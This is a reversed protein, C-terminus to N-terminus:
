NGGDPIFVEQPTYIIDRNVVVALVDYLHAEKGPHHVKGTASITGTTVQIRLLKGNKLILLDCSCDPSLARFVEFGKMTLDYSVFLEHAAGIQGKKLRPFNRHSNLERYLKRYFGRRCENSCFVARYRLKGESIKAHCYKCM